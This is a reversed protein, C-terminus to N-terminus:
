IKKTMCFNVSIHKKGIGYVFLKAAISENLYEVCSSDTEYPAVTQQM